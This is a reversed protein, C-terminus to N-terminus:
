KIALKNATNKEVLKLKIEDKKQRLLSTLDSFSSVSESEIYSDIDTESDLEFKSGIQRAINIYAPAPTRNGSEKERKYIEFLKPFNESLFSEPDNQAYIEKLYAQESHYGLKSLYSCLLSLKNM